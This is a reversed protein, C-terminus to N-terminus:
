SMAMELANFWIHFKLPDFGKNVKMTMEVLGTDTDTDTDTDTKNQKSQKEGAEM